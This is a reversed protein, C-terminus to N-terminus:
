ALRLWGRRQGVRLLAGRLPVAPVILAVRVTTADVREVFRASAATVITGTAQVVDIGQVYAPVEDTSSTVDLHVVCRNSAPLESTPAPLLRESARGCAAAHLAVAGGREIVIPQGIPPTARHAEAIAQVLRREFARQGDELRRRLARVRADRWSGYAAAEVLTRTAEGAHATPRGLDPRDLAPPASEVAAVALSTNDLASRLRQAVTASPAVRCEAHLHPARLELPSGEAYRARASAIREDSTVDRDFVVMAITQGERLPVGPISFVHGYNNETGWIVSRNRGVSVVIRLDPAAFTDWRDPERDTVAVQCLLVAAELPGVATPSAARFLEQVDPIQPERRGAWTEVDRGMWEPFVSPQAAAPSALVLVLVPLM